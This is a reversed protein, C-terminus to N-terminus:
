FTTFYTYWFEVPIYKDRSFNMHGLSFVKQALILVVFTPICLSNCHVGRNKNEEYLLQKEVLHQANSQKTPTIDMCVKLWIREHTCVFRM